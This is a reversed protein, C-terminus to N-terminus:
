SRNEAAVIAAVNHRLQAQIAKIELATLRPWDMYRMAAARAARFTLAQGIVTLATLKCHEVTAGAPLARAVLRTTVALLRHMIGEYLVDFGESPDQQERLILRAWATSADSTLMTVMADTIQQLLAVARGADAVERDELQTEISAILPGLRAVVNDAISKLVALYLGPKGGFHYGILAQNVGAAESIARTSAADFGDRGFVDIAAGILAERTSDGRTSSSPLESNM